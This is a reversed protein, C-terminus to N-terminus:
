NVQAGIHVNVGEAWASQFTPGGAAGGGYLGMYAFWFGM